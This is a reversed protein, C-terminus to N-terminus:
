AVVSKLRARPNSALQYWAEGNSFRATCVYEQFGYAKAFEALKRNIKRVESNSYDQDETLDHNIEVYFQVGSYYGSQLKVEHFLLGRNFDLLKDEIEQREDYAACKDYYQYDELENCECFDCETADASMIAGCEPCRKADENYDKAFLPFDRMTCFNAASM